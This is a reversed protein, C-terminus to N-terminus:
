HAPLEIQFVSGFPERRRATIHGGHAEIISRCIALGLGTGQAKTTFFPDFIRQAHEPDIGAGSDEVQIAVDSPASSFARIRLLRPRGSVTAMSELANAILNVLVQMLQGKNGRVQLAKPSVERQVTVSQSQLELRLLTLTESVLQEVDIFSQPLARGALTSRTSTLIQSARDGESTIDQLAARAENLDPPTHELLSAAAESNAIIASLPQHLEHAISGVIVELTLRQGDRERDEKAVALALRAYLLTSESALALLVVSSSALGLIRGVYWVLSFRSSTLSLLLTETFWAGLVVLLWLDLVSSRRSWLIAISAFSLALLLPAMNESWLHGAHTTDLMIHPLWNVGATALLTLGIVAGAIIAIGTVIPRAASGGRASEPARSDKLLTYCIAAPPLGLHWFIYLWVTTQLSAGLLGIPAFVAPFTLLHPIIILSCFLYGIALALLGRSRVVSFQAFLLSATILDNLFLITDVVPIFADERALQRDRFPLTMLAGVLLVLAVALALREQRRRPPLASLLFARERSM